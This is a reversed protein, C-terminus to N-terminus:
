AASRPTRALSRRRSRRAGAPAGLQGLLEAFAANPSMVVDALGDRVGQLGMRLDGQLGRVDNPDIRRNRAVLNVFVQGMADVDRQLRDRAGNSLPAVEAGDAKRRGYSVLTVALGAQRLAGSLDVHVAVVGVGGTFGTRPVTIRDCASAIAYAGAVASEGLLAWIPKAGRARWITEALDFCGAVEGGLSDIDFVIARVEPDALAAMLNLRIGDYGTMGAVPQLCGLRAVLVGMVPIIAVGEVVACPQMAAELDVLELPDPATIPPGNARLLEISSAALALPVGSLSPAAVRPTVELHDRRAQLSGGLAGPDECGGGAGKSRRGTLSGQRGGAAHGAGRRRTRLGCGMQASHRRDPGRSQFPELNEHNHELDALFRCAPTVTTSCSM